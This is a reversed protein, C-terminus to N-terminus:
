RKVRLYEPLDNSYPLLKRLNDVNNNIKSLTDFVYILYEYVNLNNALATEVISYAVSSMHAGNEAFCFLWNKRGIVFNKMGREALNNDIALRGDLIYNSLNGFQNISYAMAKGLATKPPVTPYNTDLWEKYADLVKKSEKQRTEYIEGISANAKELRHEIKYLNDIFKIGETCLSSTLNCKFAKIIEAYKRRAHAWCNVNTCDEVKDYAEYGDSIVYGKFGNLLLNANEHRRNDKYFYLKIQKDHKSSFLGWMYSTNSLGKIVTLTTEDIHVIDHTLIDEYMLDVLPKLLEAGALFWNSMNARSIDLGVNKFLKEQRYLPLYKVYKDTIINAVLSSSAMSKPFALDYPAKVINAIDNKYCENCKYTPYIHKEKIIKAPIYKLKYTVTQGIRVLDAGCENCKKEEDSLDHIIEVVKLNDSRNILNKKKSGKVEFTVIQPEGTEVDIPENVEKAEDEAENFVDYNFLNPYQKDLQESRRDFKRSKLLAIEQKMYEMQFKQDEVILQTEKLEKSTSDLKSNVSNLQNQLVEIYAKQQNIIDQNNM